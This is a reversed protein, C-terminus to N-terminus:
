GKPGKGPKAGPQPVTGDGGSPGVKGAIDSLLKNGAEMADKIGHLIRLNPDNQEGKKQREKEKEQFAPDARLEDILRNKKAVDKEKDIASFQKAMSMQSKLEAERAKDQETLNGKKGLAELESGIGAETGVGFQAGLYAALRGDGKGMLSAADARGVKLGLMRAIGVNGGRSITREGRSRSGAMMSLQEAGAYDGMERQAEAAKRLDAISSGYLTDNLSKGSGRLEEGISLTEADSLGVQAGKGQLNRLNNMADIIAAGGAGAKRQVKKWADGTLEGKADLYGIAQGRQTEGLAAKGFTMLAERRDILQQDYSAQAGAKLFNMASGAGAGAKEEIRRIQEPSLKSVDVGQRRAEQLLNNGALMGRLRDRELKEASEDGRIGAIQGTLKDGMDTGDLISRTMALGEKSALYNGYDTSRQGDTVVGFLGAAKDKLYGAARGALGGQAAGLAGLVPAAVLGLPGTAAIAASIGLGGGLAAGGIGLKRAREDAGGPVQGAAIEGYRRIRENQTLGSGSLM